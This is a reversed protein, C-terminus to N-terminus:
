LDGVAVHQIKRWQQEAKAISGPVDKKFKTAISANLNLYLRDGSITWFYPNGDFKKGVSVGYACFGGYAPAYREPNKAFADRSKESAFYYTVAGHVRTLEARGPMPAGETFYAVPDYGHLALPSGEATLGASANIEDEALAPAAALALAGALLSALRKSM